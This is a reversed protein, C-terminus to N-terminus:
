QIRGEVCGQQWKRIKLILNLIEKQPIFSNTINKFSKKGLHRIWTLDSIATFIASFNTYRTFTETPSAASNPSIAGCALTVQVCLM